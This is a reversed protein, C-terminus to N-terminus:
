LGLNLLSWLLWLLLVVWGFSFIVGLSIVAIPWLDALQHWEASLYARLTGVAADDTSM